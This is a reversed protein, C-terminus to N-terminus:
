RQRELLSAADGALAIGDLRVQDVLPNEARVLKRWSSPSHEVLQLDNGTWSRVDAQLRSLREHLANAQLEDAVILLDVDSDGDADGRAVSGFLWAGHLEPWSSLRERLRRILEGRLGALALVPGAALHDRNLVVMSSRGAITESVLGARILEEIVASANGPAVGAAAALRRRTVPQELRALAQLLAGRVAPAIDLVPSGLDM